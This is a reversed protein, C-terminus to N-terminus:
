RRTPRPVRSAARARQGTAVRPRAVLIALADEVADGVGAQDRLAARRLGGARQVQAAFVQRVRGSRAHLLVERSYRREADLVDLAIAMVVERPQALKGRGDLLARKREVAVELPVRSPKGVTRTVRPVISM